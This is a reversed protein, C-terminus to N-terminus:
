KTFTILRGDIIIGSFGFYDKIWHLTEKQYLFVHTPDAKYYWSDFDSGNFIDTM